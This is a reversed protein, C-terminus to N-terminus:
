TLQNKRCSLKASLFSMENEVSFLKRSAAGQVFWAANSVLLLLTPAADEGRESPEPVEQLDRGARVSVRSGGFCSKGAVSRRPSLQPCM